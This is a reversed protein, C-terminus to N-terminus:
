TIATLLEEAQRPNIVVRRDVVDAVKPARWGVRGLNNALLLELEVAYQLANHLVARKRNVTTPAASAGDLTRTLADLARRLQRASSLESVPVSHRALWGVAAEIERPRPLDRATSPLLYQRLAARLVLPDPTQDSEDVLAATATALADTLSDRTKAAAHPWKMDVYDQVFELWSTVLPQPIMSAPLGTAVDFSEGRRAAARLEGLFAEALAKTRRSRSRPRGGVVWRVEWAQVKTTRARRVEWFRVDSTAGSM